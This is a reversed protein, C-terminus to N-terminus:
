PPDRADFVAAPWIEAVWEPKSFLLNVSYEHGIRTAPPFFRPLAGSYLLVEVILVAIGLLIWRHRRAIDIASKKLFIQGLGEVMTSVVVLLVGFAVPSM